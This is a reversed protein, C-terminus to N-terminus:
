GRRTDAVMQQALHGPLPVAIIGRTQASANLQRFEEQLEESSIRTPMQELRAALGVGEAARLIAKSYVGSATDGGVRVVVVEPAQGVQRVYNAVSHRLEAGAIGGGHGEWRYDTSTM